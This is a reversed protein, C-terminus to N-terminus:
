ARLSRLWPHGTLVSNLEAALLFLRALLGIVVAFAGYTSSAERVILDISFGGLTHLATWGVPSPEPWPGL